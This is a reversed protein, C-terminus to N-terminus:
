EFAPLSQPPQYETYFVGRVTDGECSHRVIRPADPDALSWQLTATDDSPYNPDYIHVTLNDGSLDYGYALVQHNRSIKLPSWGHEKVLGLPVLRGANLEDHIKPWETEIMLSSVGRTTRVGATFKSESPRRQWDWYKMWDFPLGWSAFLRHCFYRFLPDTPEHPITRVGAQFLDIATFVMGGCLGGAASAIQVPGFPTNFLFFPRDPPFWNPFPFGHTSPRFDTVRASLSM